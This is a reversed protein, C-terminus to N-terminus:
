RGRERCREFMQQFCFRQAADESAPYAPPDTRLAAAATGCAMHVWLPLPPLLIQPLLLLLLLLLLLM